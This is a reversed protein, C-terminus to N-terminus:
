RPELIRVERTDTVWVDQRVDRCMLRINHSGLPHDASVRVNVPANPNSARVRQPATSDPDAWGILDGVEYPPIVCENANITSWRVQVTGAGATVTQGGIYLNVIPRKEVVEVMFQDEVWDPSASPNRCMVRVAYNGAPLGGRFSFRLSTGTASTGSLPLDSYENSPQTPRPSGPRPLIYPSVIFDSQTRRPIKCETVGESTYQLVFNRVSGTMFDFDDGSSHALVNTIDVSSPVDEVRVTTEAAIRQFGFPQSSSSCMVAVQYAGPPTSSPITITREGTTSPLFRSGAAGRGDPHPPQPTGSGWGPLDGVWMPNPIGCREANESEWSITIRDGPAAAGPASVRVVIPNDLPVITVNRTESIEGEAGRCTLVVPYSRDAELDSGIAVSWSGSSSFSSPTSDGLMAGELVCSRTGTSAWSLSLREGQEIRSPVNFSTISLGPGPPSGGGGPPRPGSGILGFSVYSGPDGRFVDPSLSQNMSMGGVGASREIASCARRTLDGWLSGIVDSITPLSVQSSVGGSFLGLICDYISSVASPRVQVTETMIRRSVSLDSAVLRVRDSALAQAAETPCPDYSTQGLVPGSSLLAVALCVASRRSILLCFGKM